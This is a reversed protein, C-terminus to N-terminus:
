PHQYKPVTNLNRCNVEWESRLIGCWVEDFFEGHVFRIQRLVGERTMGLKEMVRLSGTNRADARAQIRNLDAYTSFAAAMVARAAETTLGKGWYKRAISYGIEGLRKDFDFRINIGGIVTEAHEIAWSPNVERNLLLQRAIFKEADTKTYPQPVPLYHAWESDSAFAFVDDVDRWGHPRLRLRSTVILDPMIEKM